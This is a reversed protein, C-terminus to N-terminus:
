AAVKEETSGFIEMANALYKDDALIDDQTDDHTESTAEVTFFNEEYEEIEGAIDDIADKIENEKAIISSNLTAVSNITNIDQTLDAIKAEIVDANKGEYDANTFPSIQAVVVDQYINNVDSKVAEADEKHEDENTKKTTSEFSDNKINATVGAATTSSSAEKVAKVFDAYCEFDEIRLGFEEGRNIMSGRSEYGSYRSGRTTDMGTNYDYGSM